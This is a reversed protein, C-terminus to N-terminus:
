VNVAMALGLAMPGVHTGIVPAVQMTYQQDYPVLDSLQLRLNAIDNEAGTTTSLVSLHSTHQHTHAAEILRSIGRARTRVRDLQEVNGDRVCILVKIKLMDGIGAVVANARGGKRLYKLTDILAYIRVHMRLDKVREIIASATAGERAMRAATIALWGLGMTVTESDVVTVKQGSANVERAAVDAMNCLGSFKRNVHIAVVEDEAHTLRSRYVRVFEDLSPSATKPIDRYSNMNAYFQQRTISIGDVLTTGDIQLIVPVVSIDLQSAIETPLDSTSDTVIKVM